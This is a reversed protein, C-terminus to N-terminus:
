LSKQIKKLFSEREKPFGVVFFSAGFNVAKDKELSLIKIKTVNWFRFTNM